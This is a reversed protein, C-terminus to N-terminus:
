LFSQLFIYADETYIFLICMKQVQLNFDCKSRKKEQKSSSQPDYM